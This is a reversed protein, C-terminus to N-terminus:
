DNYLVILPNFDVDCKTTTFGVNSSGSLPVKLGCKVKVKFDGINTTGLKISTFFHIKVDIPYVGSISKRENFGVVEDYDFSVTRQGSFWVDVVRTTKPPQYFSLMNGSDFKEGDYYADAEVVDYHFGIRKNPNRVTIFLHLNYHLTTNDNTLSFQTLSADTVHFKMKRPNISIWFFLITLGILVVVAAVIKLILIKRSKKRKPPPGNKSAHKEIDAM